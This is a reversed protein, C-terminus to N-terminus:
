TKHAATPIRFGRHHRPLYIKEEETLNMMHVLAVTCDARNVAGDREYGEWVLGLSKAQQECEPITWERDDAPHLSRIMMSLLEGGTLADDPRFRSNKTTEKDILGADLAAQVNQADWEYKYIDCYEGQYSRKPPAQVAKFFLYLFQGRPMEDFPHYFKLCPDLLGKAMAEKLGNLQRIHKCDAYPLEPLDTSLIPREEKQDSSVTHDPYLSTDPEWPKGAFGNMCATLPGIGQSRIEEALYDAVLLAGYDNTHTVDNFYVKCKEVGMRCLLEFSHSHLDLVPVHWERGVRRCSDAYEELLDYYGDEDRSPIRSLSTVIVPYAGRKRIEHIYWRLNAAYEGYPRLNRRKQDNHGFEMMFIDGPRINRCVIDWHGDDRFCNTTMGGHAQNCVALGDFYQLMNQGWSGGNVIPNYPYRGIYDAVLSDGAIFLTPAEAREVSVSLLGAGRGLVSIYVARDEVPPKGMVPIYECVHTFFRCTVTDGPEIAIDRRVLNRRGSYLQIGSVKDDGGGITVTVAYVGNEPVNARFRLPFGDESVRAGGKGWSIEPQKEGHLRRGPNWGATGTYSDVTEEFYFPLFGWGREKEYYVQGNAADEDAFAYTKSFM